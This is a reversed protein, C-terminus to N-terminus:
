KAMVDVVVAVEVQAICWVCVCLPRWPARCGVTGGRRFFTAREAVYGCM